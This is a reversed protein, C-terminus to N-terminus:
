KTRGLERRDAAELTEQEDQAAIRAPEEDRAVLREVADLRREMRDMLALMEEVEIRDAEAPAERRRKPRVLFYAVLGFVLVSFISGVITVIELVDGLSMAISM